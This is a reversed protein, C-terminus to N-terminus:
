DIKVFMSIILLLGASLAYLGLFAAVLLPVARLIWATVTRVVFLPTRRRAGLRGLRVEYRLRDRYYTSIRYEFVIWYGLLVELGFLGATILASKHTNIFAGIQQERGIEGSMYLYLPISPVMLLIGVTQWVSMFGFVMRVRDEYASYASSLRERLRKLRIKAFIRYKREKGRVLPLVGLLDVHLLQLKQSFIAEPLLEVFFPYESFSEAVLPDQPIFLFGRNMKQLEPFNTYFQTELVNLLTIYKYKGVTRNVIVQVSNTSVDELRARVANSPERQLTAAHTARDWYYDLLELTGSFTVKDAETILLTFDSEIFSAFSLDDLGGHCDAIIVDFGAQDALSQVLTHYKILGSSQFIPNQQAMYRGTRSPDFAPIFCLQPQIIILNNPAPHDGIMLDFTNTCGPRLFTSLLGSAGQNQLDLDVLVTRYRTSCLRAFNVALLTKGVGGKGSAFSFKKTQNKM